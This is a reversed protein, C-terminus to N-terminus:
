LAFLHSGVALRCDLLQKIWDRIANFHRAPSDLVEVFKEISAVLADSHQKWAWEGIPLTNFTRVERYVHGSLRFPSSLFSDRAKPLSM